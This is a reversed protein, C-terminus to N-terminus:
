TLAQVALEYGKTGLGIVSGKCAPAIVSKRRFEERAATNSIHVEVVSYAVSKVADYLAYSYHTFAGPNFVAGDFHESQLKDILAGEHNSQFFAFDVEPFRMKLRSYIEELTEKGYIDPERKGMINLNPGNLVLIRMPIGKPNQNPFIFVNV